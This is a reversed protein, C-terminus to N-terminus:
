GLILCDIPQQKIEGLSQEVTHTTHESRFEGQEVLPVLAPCAQSVVDIAQETHALRREAQVITQATPHSM